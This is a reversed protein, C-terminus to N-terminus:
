YNGGNFTVDWGDGVVASLGCYLSYNASCVLGRSEETNRSYIRPLPIEILNPASLATNGNSSVMVNDLSALNTIEPLGVEFLLRFTSPSVDTPSAGYIRLTSAPNTGIPMARISWILGGFKDFTGAKEPTDTALIRPTVQNTLRLTWVFVEKTYIPQTNPLTSM